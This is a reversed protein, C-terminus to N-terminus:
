VMVWAAALTDKCNQIADESTQGWTVIPKVEFSLIRQGGPALYGVEMLARLYEALEAAGNCSGEAGFFPHEDGYAPHNPDSFLCNGMHAHVLHEKAAGLAQRPTEDLLPLHSLDLMLGFRPVQKKVTEALRVANHTPGILCNKGFPQCDFTELTLGIGLRETREGIQILSDALRQEAAPVDGDEPVKGSLVAVASAGVDAAEGACELVQAIARNREAPEPHNLDLKQSLLPPQAGYTYACGADRLVRRVQDRVTDDRIWTIEVATFFPDEAIRTVTELIPGEGKMCQPFAMFHVIGLRCFDHIPKDM